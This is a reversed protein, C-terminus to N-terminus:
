RSAGLRKSLAAVRAEAAQLEAEAPAAQGWRLRYYFEIVETLEREPLGLKAAALRATDLPTRMPTHDVGHRRLLRFLDRIFRLREPAVTFQRRMRRRRRIRRRVARLALLGEVMLGAAAALVGFILLPAEFQGHVLLNWISEWLAKAGAVIDAWLGALWALARDALHQRTDYDYGLVNREWALQLRSFFSDFGGFWSPPQGVAEAPSPDVIVWDSAPTFVEVWAHAHRQRVRLWDGSADAPDLLFGGVLRAQVDLARCMVALASAFYECHGKKTHFLFDEVGDRHPNSESLDLTYRYHKELQGSLRRAIALDLEDRRDPQADRAALLDECWEKALEAVRPRVDVPAARFLLGRRSGRLIALYRRQADNLPPAWSWVKYRIPDARLAGPTLTGTLDRALRLHATDCEVRILPYCTFLSPALYPTMEVEQVIFTANAMPPPQPMREHVFELPIFDLYSAWQSDAYSSYTKQRLYFAQRPLPREAGEVHLRVRMVVRDSLRVRRSDGLRVVEPIGSLGTEAAHAASPDRPALIFLLVGTAAMGALVLGVRRWLPGVPWDRSVNWAVRRADLPAAENALRATAVSDLGRKLTFVMATYCALVLYGTLLVAFLLSDSRMAAAVMLLLSLVIMQMYDRNSKREFLKCLQILIIYHGLAEILELKAGFLEVLLALTGALVGLNVFGRQVYLERQRRAALFNVGVALTGAFLYFGHASLDESCFTLVGLWIMALLPRELRRREAHIMEAQSFSRLPM